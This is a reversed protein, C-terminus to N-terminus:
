MTANSHYKDWLGYAMYTDSWRARNRNRIILGVVGRVSRQLRRTSIRSKENKEVGCINSAGLTTMIVIAAVRICRERTFEAVEFMYSGESGDKGKSLTHRNLTCELEWFDLHLFVWDVAGESRTSTATWWWEKLSVVPEVFSPSEDVM